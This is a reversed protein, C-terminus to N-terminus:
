SSSLMTEVSDTFIGDVGMDKLETAKTPTNITYAYAKLGSNKIENIKEKSLLKNGNFHYSRAGIELAEKLFFGDELGDSLVALPLFKSQSRAVKILTPSFSSIVYNESNLTSTLELIRKVLAQVETNDDNNKIKAEINLYTDCAYRDLVEELLPPAMDYFEEGKHAGVDLELFEETNLDRVAIHEGKHESSLRSLDFDHIVVAENDANLQVDFELAKAGCEIAKDFALLTNEPYKESYGRHAFILM